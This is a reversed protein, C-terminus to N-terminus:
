APDKQAAHEYKHVIRVLERALNRYRDQRRLQARNPYRLWDADPHADRFLTYALDEILDDQM